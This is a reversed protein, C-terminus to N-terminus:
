AIRRITCFAPASVTASAATNVSPSRALHASIMESPCKGTNESQILVFLLLPPDWVKGSNILSMCMNPTWWVSGDGQGGELPLPFLIEHLLKVAKRRFQEMILAFLVLVM